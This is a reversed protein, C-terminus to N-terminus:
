KGGDVYKTVENALDSPDTRPGEHLPPITGTEDINLPSVPLPVSFSPRDDPGSNVPSHQEVREPTAPSGQPVREPAVVSAPLLRLLDAVTIEEDLDDSGGYHITIDTYELAVLSSAELDLGMVGEELMGVEFDPATVSADFLGVAADKSAVAHGVEIEGYLTDFEAAVICPM